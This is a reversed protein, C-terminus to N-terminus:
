WNDLTLLSRSIADAGDKIGQIQNEIDALATLLIVPIHSTKIDSKIRKCLELGNMVPMQIDSILLDPWQDEMAEFCERGNTFTKVKFFKSLVKSVYIRMDLDDEAYFLLSDSYAGSAKIDSIETKLITKKSDALENEANLIAKERSEQDQLSEKKVIPLRVKITTGKGLESSAELYGYHMEVLKKSFALGIGSGSSHVNEKKKSQYFREFIHPLDASDIGRGTDTVSVILDKEQSEYTISISDGEKTYKFANSLLNNFVKELKDKDASVVINENQPLLQLTKNSNYALYQFDSLLRDLFEDFYFRSFEMEMLNADVKEFDHIQDILQGIKKSQRAVLNLKNQSEPDNLFRDSLQKIPVSILNLPTKLEHSINAFFRLKAANVEKEKDKEIQELQINHRLKQVKLIYFLVTGIILFIVLVYLAYAM